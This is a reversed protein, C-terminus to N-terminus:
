TPFGRRARRRALAQPCNGASAGTLFCWEIQPDKSCDGFNPDAKQPIECVPLKSLDVGGDVGTNGSAQKQEDLFKQM